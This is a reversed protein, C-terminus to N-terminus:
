ASVGTGEHVDTSVLQRWAGPVSCGGNLMYRQIAAPQFRTLRGMKFHPVLDRRVLEQIREVSVGFVCALEETDISEKHMPLRM